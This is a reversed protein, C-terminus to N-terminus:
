RFRLLAAVGGLNDLIKGAEHSTSIIHVNAGTQTALEMLDKFKKYSRDSVLLDRVAGMNLYNKVEMLTWDKLPNFKITNFATNKELIWINLEVFLVKKM